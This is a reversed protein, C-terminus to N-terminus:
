LKPPEIESCSALDFEFIFLIANLRPLPEKCLKLFCGFFKISILLLFSGILKKRSTAFTFTFIINNIILPPM